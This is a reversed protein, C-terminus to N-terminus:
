KSHLSINKLLVFPPGKKWDVKSTKVVPGGAFNGLVIDIKGDGDLDGADMTLWRGSVSESFTFPQYQFDGRNELYVFSEEPKNEYDAFFSIAAIDLDDDEDFDLAIAKYCGNIPFFFKETFHNKGDNLFLYVGHYPKLVRSYDANDGCTYVIDQYGDKNIDVLEFYTSGYVPPFRLVQQKQFQGNGKNTFLFIGEEGQAFLVWLDPLNDKNYDKVYLKIAGALDSIVHRQYTGNGKNSFWSLDGKIFGFECAIYDTKKDNNLDASVIQVPRALNSLFPLSDLFMKGSIDNFVYRAKGLKANNPNIQGMDCLLIKNNNFDIDAITGASPLSDLVDLQSNFSQLSQTQLDGLLLHNQNGTSVIKLYTTTPVSLDAEPLQVEFIPLGAKINKVSRGSLLSDPSTATYYDLINQWEISLIVPKSPYFNSDLNKDNRGSPYRKYQHSFIGLMPGMVPLVGEEWTQADLFSPDPFLHCSQCNKKALQEGKRISALSIHAHTKNRHYNKCSFLLCLAIYYVVGSVVIKFLAM